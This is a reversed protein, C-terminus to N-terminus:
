DKGEDEAPSAMTAKPAKKPGMSAITRCRRKFSTASIAVFVNGNRWLMHSMSSMPTPENSTTSGVNPLSHPTLM